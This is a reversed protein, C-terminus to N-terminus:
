QNVLNQIEGMTADWDAAASGVALGKMIRGEVKGWKDWVSDMAPINPM